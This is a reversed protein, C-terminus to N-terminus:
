GDLHHMWYQPQTPEPRGLPHRIRLPPLRDWADQGPGLTHDYTHVLYGSRPDGPLTPLLASLPSVRRFSRVTRTRRALDSPTVLTFWHNVSRLSQAPEFRTSVPWSATRSGAAADMWVFTSHSSDLPRNRFAEVQADLHTAMQSVQSKSLS